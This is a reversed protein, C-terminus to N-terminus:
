QKQSKKKSRYSMLKKFKVTGAEQESAVKKTVVREIGFAVGWQFLTQRRSEKDILGVSKV